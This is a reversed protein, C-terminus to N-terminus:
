PWVQRHRPLDPSYVRPAVRVGHPNFLMIYADIEPIGTVGEPFMGRTIEFTLGQRSVNTVSAPLRCKDRSATLLKLWEYAMVGGAHAGMADVPHSNHYKVTFYDGQVEPWRQGDTRILYQGGEVRYVGPDLVAEGIRIEVIGAVPGPLRIAEVEDVTFLSHLDEASPYVTGPYFYGVPYEDPVLQLSLLHGPVRQCTTAPMITVPEGGARHLTLATLCRDAYLEALAKINPDVGDLNVSAPWTVPWM